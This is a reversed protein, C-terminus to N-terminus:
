EGQVESECYLSGDKNLRPTIGGMGSYGGSHSYIVYEVGTEEDTWFMVDPDNVTKEINQNPNCGCLIFILIITMALCLLKKM